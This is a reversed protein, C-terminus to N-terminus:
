HDRRNDRALFSPGSIYRYAFGAGGSFKSGDMEM